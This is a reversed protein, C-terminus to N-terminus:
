DKSVSSTEKNRARIHYKYISGLNAVLEFVYTLTAFLAAHTLLNFLISLVTPILMTFRIIKLNRIRFIFAYLVLAAVCLIDLLQETKLIVLNVIIYAVVTVIALVCSIWLPARKDKYEYVFFVLVRVLGVGLGIMAFFQVTFFYSIVLFAICLSQFLLYLSKKKVFYSAVVFGMAIFSAILALPYNYM